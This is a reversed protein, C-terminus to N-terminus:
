ETKGESEERVAKSKRRERQWAREERERERQSMYRGYFQTMTLKSSGWHVIPLMLNSAHVVLSLYRIKTTKQKNRWSLQSSCGGQLFVQLTWKIFFSRPATASSVEGLLCHLAKNPIGKISLPILECFSSFLRTPRTSYYQYRSCAHNFANSMIHAGAFQLADGHKDSESHM